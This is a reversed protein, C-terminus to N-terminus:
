LLLQSTSQCESLFTLLQMDLLFTAIEISFIASFANEETVSGSKRDKEAINLTIPMDDALRDFFPSV